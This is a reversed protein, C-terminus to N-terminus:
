LACYEVTSKKNSLKNLDKRLQILLNYSSEYEKQTNNYKDLSNNHKGILSYCQNRKDYPERKISERTNEWYRLPKYAAEYFSAKCSQTRLYTLGLRFIGTIVSKGYEEKNWLEKTQEDLAGTLADALASDIGYSEKNVSAVIVGCGVSTFSSHANTASLAVGCQEAAVLNKICSDNALEKCQYSSGCITKPRKPIPRQAPLLCTKGNFLKNKELSNLAYKWSKKTESSANQRTNTDKETLKLKSQLVKYDNVLTVRIGTKEDLLSNGDGTILRYCENPLTNSPLIFSLKKGRAKTSSIKRNYRDVINYTKDTEDSLLVSLESTTQTIQTTKIACGSITLM